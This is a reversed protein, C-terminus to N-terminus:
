KPQVTPDGGPSGPPPIVPMDGSPPTPAKIGPDVNPPCIVGNTQELKDSLNQNASNRAADSCAKPDAGQAQASTSTRMAQTILLTALFIKAIMNM